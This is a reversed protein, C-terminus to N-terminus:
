EHELIAKINKIFDLHTYREKLQNYCNMNHKFEEQTLMIKNNDVDRPLENIESIYFGEHTLWTYTSSKKNLYVKTGSLIATHINGFAHQRYSNIVLAAASEYIRNFDKNDLFREILVINNHNVEERVANTYNNDPGYNFFLVFEFNELKKSKRIIKYIDLHNNWMHRSNGIIINNIKNSLDFTNPLERALPLQLFKPLYFHKNLVEYEFKNLLIIADIKSYLDFQKHKNIQYEFGLFRKIKKKFYDKFRYNKLTIPRYQNLTNKSVFKDLMQTYLEYGLLRLFVKKDKDIKELLPIVSKNLGYLVVGDFGSILALQDNIESENFVHYILKLSQLKSVTAKDVEGIFVIENYLTADTYNQVGQLFKFDTHIHILKYM